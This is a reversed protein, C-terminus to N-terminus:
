DSLWNEPVAGCVSPPCAVGAWRRVPLSCWGWMAWLKEIGAAGFVWLLAVLAWSAVALLHGVLVLLGDREIMGATLLVVSWAPLTNSFPIPLPLLLLLGAMTIGFGILNTMGPWTQLFRMRPRALKEIARALRIAGSLLKQLREAPFRIKRIFEPLWPQQGLTLRGGILFVAVGFPMSLGPIPLLCFPLALLMLLMAFGRGKLSSELDGISLSADTLRARLAELDASLRTPAVPPALEALRREEEQGATETPTPTM